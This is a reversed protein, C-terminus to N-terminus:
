VHFLLQADEGFDLSGDLRNITASVYLSVNLTIRLFWQTPNMPVSHIHGRYKDRSTNSHVDCERKHQEWDQQKASRYECLAKAYVTELRSLFLQLLAETIGNALLILIRTRLSLLCFRLGALITLALTFSVLTYISIFDEWLLFLPDTLHIPPAREGCVGNVFSTLTIAEQRDGLHCVSSRANKYVARHAHFWSM